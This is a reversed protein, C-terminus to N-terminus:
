EPLWTLRTSSAHTSLTAYRRIQSRIAVCLTRIQESRFLLYRLLLRRLTILDTGTKKARSQIAQSFKARDLNREDDFFRVLSEILKWASEVLRERESGPQPNDV